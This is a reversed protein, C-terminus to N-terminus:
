ITSGWFRWFDYMHWARADSCPMAVAAKMTWKLLTHQTWDNSLHRTLHVFVTDSNARNTIYIRVLRCVFLLCICFQCFVSVFVLDICRDTFVEPLETLPCIKIGWNFHFLSLCLVASTPTYIWNGFQLQELESVPHWNKAWNWFRFTKM